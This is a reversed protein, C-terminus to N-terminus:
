RLSMSEIPHSVLSQDLRALKLSRIASRLKPLQAQASPRLLATLEGEKLNRYPVVCETSSSSTPIDGIAVHRVRHDLSCFEGTADILVIKANYRAAQEVLRAVTWSKGGGTSGVVACHRGFLREPSIQVPTQEEGLTAVDLVLHSTSDTGRGEDSTASHVVTLHRLLEPHVTYVGRGLRPYQRIGGPLMSGDLPLTTLLQVTGLPHTEVRRGLEPEVTLREREPLKIQTIRGLVASHGDEIVVFEGVEGGGLRSGHHWSSEPAAARPLNVKAHTPGVEIVTGICREPEFPYPFSRQGRPATM